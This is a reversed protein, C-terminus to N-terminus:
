EVQGSDFSSVRPSIPATPADGPWLRVVSPFYGDFRIEIKLIQLLHDLSIIIEGSVDLHPNNLLNRKSIVNSVEFKKKKSFKKGM